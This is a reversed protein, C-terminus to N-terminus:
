AYPMEPHTKLKHHNQTLEKDRRPALIKYCISNVYIGREIEIETITARNSLTGREWVAKDHNWSRQKVVYGM